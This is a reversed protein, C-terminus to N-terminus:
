TRMEIARQDLNIAKELLINNEGDRNDVKGKFLCVSNLKFVDKMAKYSKPFIIVEISGSSDNISMFAMDSNDKKTKVVKLKTIVGAFIFVKKFDKETIDAIKKTVKENIITLHNTLPNKSILFGIVEKEFDILKDEPFEPIEKFDDTVYHKKEHQGFLGFQGKDQSEKSTAIEKVLDPYYM